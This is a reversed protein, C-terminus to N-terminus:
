LEARFKVGCGVRMDRKKPVTFQDMYEFLGSVIDYLHETQTEELCDAELEYDGLNTYGNFM